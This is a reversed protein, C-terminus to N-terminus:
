CEGIGVQKGKEGDTGIREGCPKQEMEAWACSFPAPISRSREIAQPNGKCEEPEEM